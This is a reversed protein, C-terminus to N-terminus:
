TQAMGYGLFARCHPCMLIQKQSIGGLGKTKAWVRRLEVKCTPCLPVAQEPAEEFEIGDFGFIPVFMEERNHTLRRPAM